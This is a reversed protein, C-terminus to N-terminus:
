AGPNERASKRGTEQAVAKMVQRKCFAHLREYVLDADEPRCESKQCAFFDANEYNGLNVKFTYSATVEVLNPFWVYREPTPAPAPADPPPPTPQSTTEVAAPKRPTSAEPQPAVEPAAPQHKELTAPQSSGNERRELNLKARINDAARQRVEVSERVQRELQTEPIGTAAVAAAVDASKGNSGPEHIALKNPSVEWTVVRSKKRGSGVWKQSKNIWFCEGPQPALFNIKVALEHEAFIVRNGTCSYMTKQGFATDLLKGEPFELAVEVPTNILFQVPERKGNDNAV